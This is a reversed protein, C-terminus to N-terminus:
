EEVEEIVPEGRKNKSGLLEAVRKKTVKKGERPFEDGVNYRYKNDQLDVFSKIARYGM